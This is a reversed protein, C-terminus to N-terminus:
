RGFNGNSVCTVADINFASINLFTESEFGNVGNKLIKNYQWLNSM